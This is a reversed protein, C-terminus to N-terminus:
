YKITFGKLEDTLKKIKKGLEAYELKFPQVKRYDLVMHWGHRMSELLSGALGAYWFKWIWTLPFTKHMGFMFMAVSLGIGISLGITKLENKRLRAYEDFVMDVIEPSVMKSLYNLESLKSAYLFDKRERSDEEYSLYILRKCRLLDVRVLDPDLAM